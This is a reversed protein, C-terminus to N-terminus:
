EYDDSRRWTKNVSNWTFDDSHALTSGLTQKTIGDGGVAEVVHLFIQTLTAVGEHKDIADGIAKRRAAMRLQSPTRRPPGPVWTWRRDPTKDFHPDKRLLGHFTGEKMDPDHELVKRYWERSRATGGLEMLARGMMVVRQWAAMARPDLGGCDWRDPDYSGPEFPEATGAGAKGKYRQHTQYMPVYGKDPATRWRGSSLQSYPGTRLYKSVLDGPAEDPSAYHRQVQDVIETWSAEGGLAEIAKTILDYKQNIHRDRKCVPPPLDVYRWRKDTGFRFHDHKELISRVNRPSFYPHELNVEKAIDKRSGSGGLRGIARRLAQINEWTKRQRPTRLRVDASADDRPSAATAPVAGALPTEAQRDATARGSGPVEARTSIQVADTTRPAGLSPEPARSSTEALSNTMAASTPAELRLGFARGALTRIRREVEMLKGGTQRLERDLLQYEADLDVKRTYLDELEALWLARREDGTSSGAM